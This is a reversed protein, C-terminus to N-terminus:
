SRAFALVHVSKAGATKLTKSVEAATSKTTVVDDVVLVNKNRIGSNDKLSFAGKINVHRSKGNLLAQPKTFKRRALPNLIPKDFMSSLEKAMLESQNFERERLRATHLPVPIICDTQKILYSDHKKINAGMLRGITKSLYPRNHYKFSHVLKKTSGEYAYYSILKEYGSCNHPSDYILPSQKMNKVCSLCINEDFSDEDNKIIKMCIHCTKPYLIGIFAWFWDKVMNLM